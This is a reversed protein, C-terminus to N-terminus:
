PNQKLFESTVVSLYGKAYWAPYAIVGDLHVSYDIEKFNKGTRTWIYGNANSFLLDHIQRETLGRGLDDEPIYSIFWAKGNHFSAYIVYPGAGGKFQYSDPVDSATQLVGKGYWKEFTSLPQDIQAHARNAFVLSATAALILAAKKFMGGPDGGKSIRIFIGPSLVKMERGNYLTKNALKFRRLRLRTQRM